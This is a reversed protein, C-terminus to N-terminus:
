VFLPFMRGISLNKKLRLILGAVKRTKAKFGLRECGEFSKAFTRKQEVSESSM